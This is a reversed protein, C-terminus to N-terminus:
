ERCYPASAINAIPCREADSINEKESRFNSLTQDVLLREVWHIVFHVSKSYTLWGGHKCLSDRMLYWTIFVQGFQHDPIHDDRYGDTEITEGLELIDSHRGCRSPSSMNRPCIWRDREDRSGILGVVWSAHYLKHWRPLSDGLSLSLSPLM